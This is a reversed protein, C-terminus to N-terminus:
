ASGEQIYRQGTGNCRRCRISEIVEEGDHGVSGIFVWGDLCFLCPRTEAQENAADTGMRRHASSDQHM